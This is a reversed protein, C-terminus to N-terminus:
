EEYILTMKNFGSITKTLRMCNNECSEKLKEGDEIPIGSHLNVNITVKKAKEM